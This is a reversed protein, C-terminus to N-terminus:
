DDTLELSFENPGDATVTETLQSTGPSSYKEPLLHRPPPLDDTGADPDYRPDDEDFVEAQEVAEVKKISIRYDGPVAGDGPEFTMLEFRGDADTRAFASHGEASTGPVSQGQVHFMVEAGQVPNGNHTVRGTAPVTDPRGEVYPDSGCGLMIASIFALGVPRVFHVCM